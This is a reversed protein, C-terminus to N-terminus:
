LCYGDVCIDSAGACLQGLAANCQTGLNDDSGCVSYTEGGTTVPKCVNFEDAQICSNSVGADCSIYCSGRLCISGTACKGATGDGQEGTVACVFSPLEDVVCGGLRCVLGRPCMDDSACEQVCRDGVCTAGTPCPAQESCPTPNETCLGRAEDCAYGIPCDVDQACKATCVGDACRAGANCQTSDVCQEAPTICENNLCKSGPVPCDAAVTCEKTGGDPITGSSSGGSSSGSQESLCTAEGNQVVCEYGASCGVTSCSSSTCYGAASCTEGVFCDSPDTCDRGGYSGSSSNSYGGNSGYGDCVYNGDYDYGCSDGYYDDDYIPCGTLVTIAPVLLLAFRRM